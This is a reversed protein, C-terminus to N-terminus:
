EFLNFTRCLVADALKSCFAAQMHIQEVGDAEFPPLGKRRQDPHRVYFASTLETHVFRFQKLTVLLICICEGVAAIADVIKQGIWYVPKLILSM